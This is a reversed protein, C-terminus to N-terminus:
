DGRGPLYDGEVWVEGDPGIEKKWIPVIEKLRDIGYKAAEFVGTDRHAASCAILVTPSKPSQLGIRQVMAIGFLDPWRSEMEDAIQNMKELAMPEYAEFELATTIHGHGKTTIGRIVGIFACVAGTAPTTISMTLDELALPERTLQIVRRAGSGGSVPPFFAIEAGDTILDENLAFSRNMSTLSNGMVNKLGPFAAEVREKLGQITTGAPVDMVTDACGAKEKISAFFLISVKM